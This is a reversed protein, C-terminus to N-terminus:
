SASCATSCGSGAVVGILALPITLLVILPQELHDFQLVLLLVIALFVVPLKTFISANAEQSAEVAGGYAFATGPGCGDVAATLVPQLREAVSAATADRGAARLHHRYPRPRSPPDGAGAVAPRSRRGPRPHRRPRLGAGRDGPHGAAGHGAFAGDGHAPPRPPARRRRPVGGGDPRRPPTCASPWTPAPSGRAGPGSRTWTWWSPRSGRAGTTPSTTRRPMTRLRQRVTDALAFLHRDQDSAIRVEVPADVPPGYGLPRVVAHLGPHRDRLWDTLRPAATLAQERSTLNILLRALHPRRPDVRAPLVYRPSGRGIFSIWSTVGEDREEGALWRDQLHAELDGVVAATRQVPTGEPLTLTARLFARDSAPFFIVPITRGLLIAAVAMLAVAALTRGRRRLMSLLVRRYRRYFPTQFAEHEGASRERHVRLFLVCALPILTQSLVWSALLTIAVVEFLHSTYEGTSSEALYIPLFAAATTLSSVLLPSRLERAADVAADTAGQGRDMRVMIAESMVIANDVLLGLAIILSSISVTNLSIDGAKMMAMAALMTLPILAAVVLGTRLGLFVLMLAMVIGVAQLLNRVFRAVNQQVRDPQFYVTDLTVGAPAEGRLREMVADTRRGLEVIKGDPHMAVGIAVAPEGSSRVLVHRPEAFGRRVSAVDGLALAEGTEPHVLVTRRLQELSELNGTTRLLIREEGTDLAGAPALINRAALLDRLQRPRLGVAELRAPDYEVWIREPQVGYLEVKAVDEVMLLRDRATEALAELDRPSLDAGAVTYIIGFVDGFEDDVFPGLAGRPLRDGVRDLKRRLSDFIPRMETYRAQFEVYILSSGQRSESRVEDLEPIQQIREAVPDTVLREVQEPTAGPLLTRVVATRITFGPDEAQPLTWYSWAGLAALVALATGTVWRRTIALRTM